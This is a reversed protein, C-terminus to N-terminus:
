PGRPGPEWWEDPVADSAKELPVAWRRDGDGM